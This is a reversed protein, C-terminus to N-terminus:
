FISQQINYCIKNIIIWLMNFYVEHLVIKLYKGASGTTEISMSGSSTKLDNGTLDM